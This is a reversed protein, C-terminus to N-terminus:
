TRAPARVWFRSALAGFVVADISWNVASVAVLRRLSGGRRLPVYPLPLRDLVIHSGVLAAGTMADAVLDREGEASGASIVGAFGALMGATLAFGLTQTGRRHLKWADGHLALGLIVDADPLSAAVIAAALGLPSHVGMRRAITVGAITHGVPTSM